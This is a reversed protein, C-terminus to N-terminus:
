VYECMCANTYITHHKNTCQAIRYIILTKYGDLIGIDVGMKSYTKYRMLKLKNTQKCCRSIM